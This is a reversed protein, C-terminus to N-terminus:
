NKHINITLKMSTHVVHLTMCDIAYALLSIQLFLRLVCQMAIAIGADTGPSAAQYIIKDPNQTDREPVM